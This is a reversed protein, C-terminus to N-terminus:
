PFTNQNYIADVDCGIVLDAIFDYTDLYWEGNEPLMPAFKKDQKEKEEKMAKLQEQMEQLKREMAEIQLENNM